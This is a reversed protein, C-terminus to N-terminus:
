QKVKQHYRASYMLLNLMNLETPIVQTHIAICQAHLDCLTCTSGHLVVHLCAHQVNM